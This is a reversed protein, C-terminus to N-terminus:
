LVTSPAKPSGEPLYLFCLNNFAHGYIVTTIVEVGIEMWFNPYEVFNLLMQQQEVTKTDGIPAGTMPQM